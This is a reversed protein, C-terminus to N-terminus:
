SSALHQFVYRNGLSPGSGPRLDRMGPAIRLRGMGTEGILMRALQQQKLVLAQNLVPRPRVIGLPSGMAQLKEQM